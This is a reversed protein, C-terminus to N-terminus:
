SAANGIVDIEFRGTASHSHRLTDINAILPTFVLELELDISWTCVSGIPVRANEIRCTCNAGGLQVHRGLAIHEDDLIGVLRFGLGRWLATDNGENKFVRNRTGGFDTDQIRAAGGRHRDGSRVVSHSREVVGAGQRASHLNRNHVNHLNIDLESTWRSHGVQTQATLRDAARRWM